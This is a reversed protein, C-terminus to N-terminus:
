FWTQPKPKEYVLLWEEVIRETTMAFGYQHRVGGLNATIEFSTPEDRSSKDLLFPQYFLKQNAQSTASTVILNRMSAMAQILNSKGGANPGYISLTKLAFPISEIGTSVLHSDALTKDSTATLSLRQEARISKFNKVVFELLM